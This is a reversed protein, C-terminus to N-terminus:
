PWIKNYHHHHGHHHDIHQECSFLAQQCDFTPAAAPFIRSWCYLQYIITLISNTHLLIYSRNYNIYLLYITIVPPRQLLIFEVEVVLYKHEVCGVLLDSTEYLLPGIASSFCFCSSTSRNSFPKLRVFSFISLIWTWTVATMLQFADSLSHEIRSRSIQSESLFCIINNM